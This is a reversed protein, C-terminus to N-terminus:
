KAGAAKLMARYTDATERRTAGMDPAAAGADIMALTPNRPVEVFGEERRAAIYADIAADMMTDFPVSVGSVEKMAFALRAAERARETM